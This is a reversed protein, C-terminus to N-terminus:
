HHNARLSVLLHIVMGTIMPQCTVLGPTQHAKVHGEAGLAVQAAPIMSTTLITVRAHMAALRFADM